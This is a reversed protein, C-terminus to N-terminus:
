TRALEAVRVLCPRNVHGPSASSPSWWGRRGRSRLKFGGGSRPMVWVGSRRRRLRPRRLRLRIRREPEDDEDDDDRYDLLWNDYKPHPPVTLQAGDAFDLILTGRVNTPNGNVDIELTDDGDVTASTITAQFLDIVPGLAGRSTEPDLHHTTGDASRLSFATFITLQADVPVADSDESNSMELATQYDFTIQYVQCGILNAPSPM